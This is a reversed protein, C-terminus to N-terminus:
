STHSIDPCSIKPIRGEQCSNIPHSLFRLSSSRASRSWRIRSSLPYPGPSFIKNTTISLSQPFQLPLSISPKAQELRSVQNRRLALRPSGRLIPAAKLVFHERM